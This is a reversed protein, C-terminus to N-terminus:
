LLGMNRKEQIIQYIEKIEKSEPNPLELFKQSGGDFFLALPLGLKGKRHKLVHLTRMNDQLIDLDYKMGSQKYLEKHISPNFLGIVVQYDRGILKNDGLKDLSPYLKHLGTKYYELGEGAMTQQHISAVAYKFRKIVRDLFYEASMRQMSEHLTVAGKEGSLLSIHDVVVLVLEKPDNPVYKYYRYMDEGDLLNKEELIEETRNNIYLHKGRQDSVKKIHKYIGTPNGITDIVEIYKKLLQIDPEVEEIYRKIEDSVKGRYGQLGYLDLSIKYKDRIFMLRFTDYFDEESEERAFFLIKYNVNNLEAYEIAKKIFLFKALQTKGVGTGATISYYTATMIGPVIERLLPLAFPICIKETYKEEMM